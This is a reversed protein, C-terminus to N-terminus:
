EPVVDALEPYLAVWRELTAQKFWAGTRIMFRAMTQVYEDRDIGMTSPEGTVQGVMGREWRVRQVGWNPEDPIWDRWDPHVERAMERYLERFLRDKDARAEAESAYYGHVTMSRYEHHEVYNIGATARWMWKKKEWTRRRVGAIKHRIPVTRQYDRLLTSRKITPNYYFRGTKPSRLYHGM